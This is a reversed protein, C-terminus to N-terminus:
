VNCTLMALNTGLLGSVFGSTATIATNNAIIGGPAVTFQQFLYTAIIFACFNCNRVYVIDDVAGHQVVPLLVPQQNTAALISTLRYFGIPLSKVETLFVGGEAIRTGKFFTFIEPNTPQDPTALQEIVVFAHGKIQGSADLQQPAALFKTNSDVFFGTALNAVALGVTFPSEPALIDGNRPYTFKSSPMRTSAPIVGMPAPNCFGTKQQTGDSLPLTSTACFNIFNNTSTLSATQGETPPNQGDSSFGKAIVSPDL